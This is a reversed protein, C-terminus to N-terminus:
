GPPELKGIRGNCRGVFVDLRRCGEIVIDTFLNIYDPQGALRDGIKSIVLFM